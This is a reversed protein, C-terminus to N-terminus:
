RDGAQTTTGAAGPWTVGKDSFLTAANNFGNYMHFALTILALVKLLLIGTAYKKKHKQLHARLKEHFVKKTAM